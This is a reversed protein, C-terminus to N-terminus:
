NIKSCGSGKCTAYPIRNRQPTASHPIMKLESSLSKCVNETFIIVRPYCLRRERTIPDSNCEKKSYYRRIKMDCNMIIIKNIGNISFLKM